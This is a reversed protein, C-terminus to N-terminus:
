VSIYALPLTQQKDEITELWLRLIAAGIIRSQRITRV